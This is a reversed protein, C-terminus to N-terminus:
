PNKLPSLVIQLRTANSIDNGVEPDNVRARAVVNKYQRTEFSPAKAEISYIGPILTTFRYFGTEDSVVSDAFDGNSDIAIIIANSIRNNAKDRVDGEIQGLCNSSIFLLIVIIFSFKKM